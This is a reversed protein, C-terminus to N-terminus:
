SDLIESNQERDTQLDSWLGILTDIMEHAVTILAAAESTHRLLDLADDQAAVTAADRAQGIQREVAELTRATDALQRAVDGATTNLPLTDSM